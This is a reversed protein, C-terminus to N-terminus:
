DLRVVNSSNNENLLYAVETRNKARLKKMINKVHVKVTSECMNLEYAIIKNAKGRRVAEIVALQKATFTNKPAESDKPTGDEGRAAQSYSALISPPLYTGGAAVLQMARLAVNIGINAPIYGSAGCEIVQHVNNTGEIESLVIVNATPDTSKIRNVQPLIAEVGHFPTLSILVIRPRDDENRGLREFEEPDSIYTITLTPELGLLSSGLCERMLQREDVIMVELENAGGTLALDPAPARMLCDM